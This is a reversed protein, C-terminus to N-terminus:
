DRLNAFAKRIARNAHGFASVTTGGGPAPFLMVTVILGSHNTFRLRRRNVDDTVHFGQLGMRPVIHRLAMAYAEGPSSSLSREEHFAGVGPWFFRHTPESRALGGPDPEPLDRTVLELDGRTTAAYVETLREDLEELTLRGVSWHDRLVRAAQDREADSARTSPGHM